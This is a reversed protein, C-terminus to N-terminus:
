KGMWKTWLGDFEEVNEKTVVPLEYTNMVKEPKKNNLAYNVLMTVTTHGWAYCDQGILAQVQGKRVYGLQTPLHDVSVVKAKDYVGDLANETFLPWGGVMAWGTIDPNATQVQQVMAAADAPTEKHYYVEKLKINPHKGMEEKVGKVRAQLNPATQNGALIAVVGKDGMAKALERMVTQGAIVDDTGFYAMRKSQASDSDFTIIPVGKEVAADIPAKLVNGDTCSVTIGDVGKAVLQEIAQAQKQADEGPPTQWDIKIEIGLKESLEKAADFAGTKAAQFVPNSQSKAIVGITLAKKGGAPAAPKEAPNAEAAKNEAPKNEAPKADSATPAPKAPETKGECGGLSLLAASGILSAALASMFRKAEM